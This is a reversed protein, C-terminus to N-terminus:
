RISYYVLSRLWGAEEDCVISSNHQMSFWLRRAHLAALLLWESSWLYLLFLGTTEMQDACKAARMPTYDHNFYCLRMRGGGEGSCPLGRLVSVSPFLFIESNEEAAPEKHM